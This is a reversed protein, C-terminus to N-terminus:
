NSEDWNETVRKVVETRSRWSSDNIIEVVLETGTPYRVCKRTGWRKVNWV